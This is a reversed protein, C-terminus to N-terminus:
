RKLRFHGHKRLCRDQERGRALLFSAVFILANGYELAERIVVSFGRVLVFLYAKAWSSGGFSM